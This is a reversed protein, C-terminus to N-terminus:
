MYKVLMGETGLGYLWSCMCVRKRERERERALAHARERESERVDEREIESERVDERESQGESYSESEREDRARERQVCVRVCV